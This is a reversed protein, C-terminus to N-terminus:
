LLLIGPLLRSHFLIRTDIHSYRYSYINDPVEIYSFHLPLLLHPAPHKYLLMKWDPCVAFGLHMKQSAPFSQPSYLLFHMVFSCDMTTKLHLPPHHFHFNQTRFLLHSYQFDVLVKRYLVPFAPVQGPFTPNGTLPVVFRYASTEYLLLM